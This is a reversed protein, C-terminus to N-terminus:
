INIDSPFLLPLSSSFPTLRASFGLFLHSSLSATACSQKWTDGVNLPTNPTDQLHFESRVGAVILPKNIINGSM